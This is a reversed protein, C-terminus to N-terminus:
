RLVLFARLADNKGVTTEIRKVDAMNTIEFARAAFAVDEDDADVCVGADTRQFAGTTGNKIFVGARKKDSRKAGNIVHNQEAFRADLGQEFVQARVNVGFSGVVSRFGHWLSGGGCTEADSDGDDTVGFVVGRAIKEFGNALSRM